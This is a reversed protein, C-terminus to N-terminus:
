IHILSLGLVLPNALAKKKANDFRIQSATERPLLPEPLGFINLIPVRDMWVVSRVHDLSELSDVVRRLTKAGRPSFMSDSEVVMVADAGAISFPNVDPPAEDNTGDRMVSSNRERELQEQEPPHLFQYIKEPAFQGVSAVATIFVLLVITVWPYLVIWDTLVYFLRRPKEQSVNAKM